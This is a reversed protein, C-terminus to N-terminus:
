YIYFIYYDIGYNYEGVKLYSDISSITNIKNMHEQDVILFSNDAFKNKDNATIIPHGTAAYIIRRESHYNIFM